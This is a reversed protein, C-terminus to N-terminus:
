KLWMYSGQKCISLFTSLPVEDDVDVAPPRRRPLVSGQKPLGIIAKRTYAQKTTKNADDRQPRATATAPPSGVAPNVATLPQALAVEHQLARIVQRAVRPVPEVAAHPLEPHQFGVLGVVAVAVGGRSGLDPHRYLDFFNSYRKNVLLQRHTHHHDIQRTEEEREPLDLPV